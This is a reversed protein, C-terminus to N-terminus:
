YKIVNRSIRNLLKQISDKQTLIDIKIIKSNSYHTKQQKTKM